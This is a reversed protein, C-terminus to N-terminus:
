KKSDKKSKKSKKTRKKLFKEKAADLADPHAECDEWLKELHKELFADEDETDSFRLHSRLIPITKAAEATARNLKSVKIPLSRIRTPTAPTGASSDQTQRAAEATALKQQIRAQLAKKTQKKPSPASPGTPPQQASSSSSYSFSVREEREFKQEQEAQRLKNQTQRHPPPHDTTNAHDLEEYAGAEQLEHKIEEYEVNYFDKVERNHIATDEAEYDWHGDSDLYVEADSLDGTNQPPPPFSPPSPLFPPIGTQGEDDTTSIDDDDDNDENDDGSDDVQIVEASWDHETTSNLDQPSSVSPSLRTELAKIHAQLSLVLKKETQLETRTAQLQEFLEDNDKSVTEASERETLEEYLLCLERDKALRQTKELALSEEARIRYVKETYKDRRHIDLAERIVKWVVKNQKTIEAEFAPTLNSYSNDDQAACFFNALSGRLCLKSKQLLLTSLLDPDNAGKRQLAEQLAIKLVEDRTDSIIDTVYLENYEPNRNHSGGADAPSKNSSPSPGGTSTRTANPPATNDTGTHTKSKTNSNDTYHAPHGNTRVCRRSSPLSSSSPATNISSSTRSDDEDEYSDKFSDAAKARGSKRVKKNNTTTKTTSAFTVRKASSTSHAPSPPPLSPTNKNRRVKQKPGAKEEAQKEKAWKLAEQPDEISLYTEADQILNFGKYHVDKVGKTKSLVVHWESYVRDGHIAYM